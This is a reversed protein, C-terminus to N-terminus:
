NRAASGPSIAPQNAMMRDILGRLEVLAEIPLVVRARIVAETKAVDKFTSDATKRIHSFTLTALPGTVWLNTPGVCLVEPVVHPDATTNPQPLFQPTPQQAM